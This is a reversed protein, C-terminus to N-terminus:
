NKPNFLSGCGCGSNAAPKKGCGCGNNAEPKKSNAANAEVKDMLRSLFFSEAGEEQIQGYNIEVIVQKIDVEQQRKLIKNIIKSFFRRLSNFCGKSLDKYNDKNPVGLVLLTRLKGTAKNLAYYTTIEFDEYWDKNRENKIHYTRMEKKLIYIDTAEIFPDKDHISKIDFLLKRANHGDSDMRYLSYSYKGSAVQERRLYYVHRTGISVDSASIGSTIKTNCTGDLKVVRFGKESSNDIYYMYSGTFKIIEGVDYALVFKKQGDLSSKVLISGNRVYIWGNIIHLYNHHYNPLIEIRDTGDLKISYLPSYSRNGVRYYLRESDIHLFDYINEEILVDEKTIYDMVHMERNLNNPTWFTYAVKTGSVGLIECNRSFLVETKGTALNHMKAHNEYTKGKKKDEAIVESVTFFVFDHLCICGIMKDVATSITGKRLDVLLLAYNNQVSKDYERKRKKRTLACGAKFPPIDLTKKVYMKDGAFTYGLSNEDDTKYGFRSSDLLTEVNTRVNFVCLERGKKLYYINDGYACILESFARISPEKAPDTGVIEHLDWTKALSEEEPNQNKKSKFFACGKNMDLMAQHPCIKFRKGGAELLEGFILAKNMLKIYKASDKFGRIPDLFAVADSYHGHDYAVIGNDYNNEANIGKAAYEQILRAENRAMRRQAVPLEEVEVAPNIAAMSREIESVMRRAQTVVSAEAGFKELNAIDCNLVRLLGERSDAVTRAIDNFCSFQDVVNAMDGAYKDAIEEQLKELGEVKHQLPVLISELELQWVKPDAAHRIKNKEVMIQLDEIYINASRNYNEWDFSEFFTDLYLLASEPADISRIAESVHVAINTTPASGEIQTQAFVNDCAQCTYTRNEADFRMEGVTGCIPCKNLASYNAM